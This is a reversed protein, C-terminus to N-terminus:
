KRRRKRAELKDLSKIDGSQAQEFLKLDIIYQSRVFGTNYIQYFDSEKDNLLEEIEKVDWGLVNSCMSATYEFAGLNLIKEKEQETIIREM